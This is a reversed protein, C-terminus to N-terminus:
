GDIAARLHNEIQGNAYTSVARMSEITEFLTLGEGVEGRGCRPMTDFLEDFEASFKAWKKALEINPNFM